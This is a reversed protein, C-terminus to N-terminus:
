LGDCLEIEAGEDALAARVVEYSLGSPYGKRALMGTLRRVRTATELGRSAALKAQVIRRATSRETDPDLASLAAVILDDAVGKRRLEATLAARSLGKVHHRSQVWQRAYDADDVLGLEEMRDLVCAAAEDPVRRAALRQELEARTRAASSLLTLVISRAADRPDVDPDAAIDPRPQRHDGVAPRPRRRPSSRLTM